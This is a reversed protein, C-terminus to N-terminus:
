LPVVDVIFGNQITAKAYYEYLIDDNNTIRVNYTVNIIEDNLQNVKVDNIQYSLSVGTEAINSITNLYDSISVYAYSASYKHFLVDIDDYIHKAGFFGYGRPAKYFLAQITKAMTINSPSKAYDSLLSYLQFVKQKATEFAGGDATENQENEVEKQVDFILWGANKEDRSFNKVFFKYGKVQTFCYSLTQVNNIKLLKNYVLCNFVSLRDNIHKNESYLTINPANSTTVSRLAIFNVENDTPFLRLQDSQTRPTLELMDGKADMISWKYIDDKVQETRLILTIKDKKGQFTVNCDAIAYWTSDYFSLVTHEKEISSLFDNLYESNDLYYNKDFLLIRNDREYSASQDPQILLEKLNFRLIFEDIQKVNYYFNEFENDLFVIQAQTNFAHLLFTATLLYYIKKM